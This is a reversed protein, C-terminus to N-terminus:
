PLGQAWLDIYIPKKSKTKMLSASALMLLALAM